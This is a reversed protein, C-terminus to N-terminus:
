LVANFPPFDISLEYKFTNLCYRNNTLLCHNKVEIVNAEPNFFFCDVKFKILSAIALYQNEVPTSSRPSFVLMTIYLKNECPFIFLITSIVIYFASLLKYYQGMTVGTSFWVCNKGSSLAGVSM